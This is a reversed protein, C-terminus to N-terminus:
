QPKSIQKKKRKNYWWDKGKNFVYKGAIGAAGCVFAMLGAQFVKIAFPLDNMVQLILTITGGFLGAIAAILNEINHNMLRM